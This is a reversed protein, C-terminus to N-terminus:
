RRNIELRKSSAEYITKAIPVQETDLIGQWSDWGTIGCIISYVALTEPSAERVFNSIQGAKYEEHAIGRRTEYSQFIPPTIVQLAITTKYPEKQRGMIGDASVLIELHRPREHARNASGEVSMNESIANMFEIHEDARLGRTLMSKAENISSGYDHAIIRGRWYEPNQNIGYLYSSLIHPVLTEDAVLRMAFLDYISDRRDGTLLSAYKQAYSHSIGAGAKLRAHIQVDSSIKHAGRGQKSLEEVKSEFLSYLQPLNAAIFNHRTLELITEGEQAPSKPTIIQRSSNVEEDFIIINEGRESLDQLTANVDKEYIPVEWLQKAIRKPSVVPNRLVRELGSPSVSGGVLEYKFQLTPDQGLNLALAIGHQTHNALEFTKAILISELTDAKGSFNDIGNANVRTQRYEFHRLKQMDEATIIGQEKLAIAYAQPTSEIGQSKIEAIGKIIRSRLNEVFEFYEPLPTSFPTISWSSDAVTPQARPKRQAM